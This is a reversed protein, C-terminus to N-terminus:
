QKLFFPQIKIHMVFKYYCLLSFNFLSLFLKQIGERTNNVGSSVKLLFIQM